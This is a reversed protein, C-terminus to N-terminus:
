TFLTVLNSRDHGAKQEERAPPESQISGGAVVRIGPVHKMEASDKGGDRHEHDIGDGVAEKVAITVGVSAEARDASPDPEEEAEHHTKATEQPRGVNEEALVDVTMVALVGELGIVGVGPHSEEQLVQEDEQSAHNVLEPPRLLVSLHVAVDTLDSVM